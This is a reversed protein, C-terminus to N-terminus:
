KESEQCFAPQNWLPNSVWLPFCLYICERIADDIKNTVM